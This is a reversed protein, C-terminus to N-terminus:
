ARAMASPPMSASIALRPRAHLQAVLGRRRQGLQPEGGEGEIAQRGQGIAGDHGTSAMTPPM